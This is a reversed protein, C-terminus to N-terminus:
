YDDCGSVTLTQVRITAGTVKARIVLTPNNDPNLDAISFQEILRGGPNITIVGSAGFPAATWTPNPDGTLASEAYLDIDQHILAYTFTGVAPVNDANSFAMEIPANGQSLDCKLYTYGPNGSGQVDWPVYRSRLDGYVTLDHYASQITPAFVSNM